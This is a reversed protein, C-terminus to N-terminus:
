DKLAYVLGLVLAGGGLVMVATQWGQSIGLSNLGLARTVDSGYMSAQAQAQAARIQADAQAAATESQSKAQAGMGFALAINGAASAVQGVANFISATNDAVPAHTTTATSHEADGAAFGALTGRLLPNM